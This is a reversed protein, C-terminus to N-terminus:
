LLRQVWREFDYEGIDFDNEVYTGSLFDALGTMEEDQIIYINEKNVEYFDYRVIDTYNTVLLRHMYMAELPRLTLGWNSRDVVDLIAASHEVDRIYDAYPRYARHTEERGLYSQIWFNTAIGQREAGEKIQMLLEYRKATKAGGVFTLGWEYGDHADRVDTGDAVAAQINEKNWYQPEYPIHYKEADHINYTVERVHDRLAEYHLLRQRIGLRNRYVVVVREPGGHKRDSLHRIDTPKILSEDLLVMDYDAYNQKWEGYFPWMPLWNIFRLAIIAIFFLLNNYVAGCYLDLVTLSFGQYERENLASERTIFLVKKM